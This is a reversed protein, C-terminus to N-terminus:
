LKNYSLYIAKISKCILSVPYLLSFNDKHTKAPFVYSTGLNNIWGDVHKM